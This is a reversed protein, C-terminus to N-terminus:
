PGSIMFTFESGREYSGQSWRLRKVINREGHREAEVRERTSKFKWEKRERWAREVKM